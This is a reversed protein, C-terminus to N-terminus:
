NPNILNTINVCPPSFSFGPRARQKTCPAAYKRLGNLWEVQGLQEM